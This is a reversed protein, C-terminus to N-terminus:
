AMFWALSSLFFFYVTRSNHTNHALNNYRFSANYSCRCYVMLVAAANGAILGNEKREKKKAPHSAPHNARSQVQFSIAPRTTVYNKYEINNNRFTPSRWILGRTYCSEDM